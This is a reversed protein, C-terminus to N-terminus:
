QFMGLVFSSNQNAQALMAQASRSLINYKTYDTVEKAMDADRIVSESAQANERMTVVNAFSTELRQLYAGMSTAEDLATEIASEISGIASNAKERTVVEAKDIGLAKSRMDKIYVHMRQNAQTGHQIWLPNDPKELSETGPLPAVQSNAIVGNLIQIANSKKTLYIKGNSERRIRLSHAANVLIDDATNQHNSSSNRSGNLSFGIKSQFSKEIQNSVASIGDFIAGALQSGDTVDKVGIIFERAMDNVTGDPATNPTNDYTSQSTAKTADFRINIYQPCGDCLISFGQGHLGDPYSGNISLNSFDM